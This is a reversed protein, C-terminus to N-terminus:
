PMTNITSASFLARRRATSVPPTLSWPTVMRWPRASPSLTMVRPAEMTRSPSGTETAACYRISPSPRIFAKVRKKTSRQCNVSTSNKMSNPSPMWDTIDIGLDSSGMTEKGPTPTKTTNGPASASCISRTTAIGM